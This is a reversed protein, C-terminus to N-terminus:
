QNMVLKASNIMSRAFFDLVAMLGLISGFWAWANQKDLGELESMMNISIISSIFYLLVAFKGKLSIAGTGYRFAKQVLLSNTIVLVIILLIFSSFM